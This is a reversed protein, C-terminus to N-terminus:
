STPTLGCKRRRKWARYDDSIRDLFLAGSISWFAGDYDTKFVSRLPCYRYGALFNIGVWSTPRFRGIPPFKLSLSLGAGTPLFDRTNTRLFVDGYQSYVKSSAKGYGVEFPLSLEWYKKRLLFPEIYATGFILSTKSYHSTPAGPIQRSNLRTDNMYYVGVGLKLEDKLLIGGRQGWINVSQGRIFSFRQDFDTTPKIPIRKSPAKCIKATDNAMGPVGLSDKGSNGDLPAAWLAISAQSLLLCLVLPFRKM